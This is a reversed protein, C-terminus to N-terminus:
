QQNVKRRDTIKVFFEMLYIVIIPKNQPLLTIQLNAQGIDDLLTAEV